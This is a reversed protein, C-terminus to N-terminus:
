DKCPPPQLAKLRELAQGALEALEWEDEDQLCSKFIAMKIVCHKGAAREITRVRNALAKHTMSRVRMLCHSYTATPNEKAAKEAGLEAMRLAAKQREERCEQVRTRREELIDERSIAPIAEPAGDPGLGKLRRSSRSPSSAVMKRKRTSIEEESDSSEPPREPSPPARRKWAVDNSLKEEKATILGLSRLRANNREINRARTAEYDNLVQDKSM